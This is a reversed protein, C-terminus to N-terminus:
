EAEVLLRDFRGLLPAELGAHTLALRDGHEHRDLQGERQASVSVLSHRLPTGTSITRVGDVISGRPVDTGPKVSGSRFPAITDGSSKRAAGASSTANM